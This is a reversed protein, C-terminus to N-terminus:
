HHSHRCPLVELLMTLHPKVQLVLRTSASIADAASWDESLASKGIVYIWRSRSIVLRAEPLMQASEIISLASRRTGVGEASYPVPGVEASLQLVTGNDAPRTNATFSLGMLRFAFEIQRDLRGIQLAQNTNVQLRSDAESIRQASLLPIAKLNV